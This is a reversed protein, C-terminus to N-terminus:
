DLPLLREIRDLIESAVDHKSMLPLDERTGSAHLLTVRNTDVAFGADPATVDNACIFSLRKDRLKIRANAVLDETEAAFGVKLVSDPVELLFDQNEVLRLLIEKGSKKIKHDSVDAVHFDSVAAAMILVDATCCAKLVATRMEACTEVETVSGYHERNPPAITTVLSVSAGRENAVHALAFGMKGSSRNGIFRIPDIPERNGGATVVVHRDLLTSPRTSTIEM